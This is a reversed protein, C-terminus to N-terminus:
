CNEKRIKELNIKDGIMKLQLLLLQLLYQEQRKLLAYEAKQAM